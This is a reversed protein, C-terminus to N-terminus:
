KRARLTGSNLPRANASVSLWFLSGTTIGAQTFGPGATNGANTSLRANPTFNLYDTGVYPPAAFTSGGGYLHQVAFASGASLLASVSVALTAVKTLRPFRSLQRVSSRRDIVPASTPDSPKNWAPRTGSPM